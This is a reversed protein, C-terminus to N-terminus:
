FTRMKFIHAVIVGHHLAYSLLQLPCLIHFYKFVRSIFHALDSGTSINQHATEEPM